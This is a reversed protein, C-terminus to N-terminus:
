VEKLLLNYCFRIQLFSTMFYNRYLAAAMIMLKYKFVCKQQQVSALTQPFKYVNPTCFSKTDCGLLCYKTMNVATFVEFRAYSM